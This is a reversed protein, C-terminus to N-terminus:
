TRDEPIYRQTHRQFDAWMDSSCVVEMTGGFHRHVADESYLMGDETLETLLGLQSASLM